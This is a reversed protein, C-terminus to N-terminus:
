HEDLWEGLSVTKFSSPHFHLRDIGSFQLVVQGRMSKRLDSRGVAYDCGRIAGGRVGTRGGGWRSRVLVWWCSSGLGHAVCMDRVYAGVGVWGWIGVILLERFLLIM